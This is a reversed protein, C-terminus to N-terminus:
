GKIKKPNFYPYWKLLIRIDSEDIGSIVANKRYMYYDNRVEIVYLAMTSSETWSVDYLELHWGRDGHGTVSSDEGCHGMVFSYSELEQKTSFWGEISSDAPTCLFDFHELYEKVFYRKGACYRCPCPSRDPKEREACVKDLSGSLPTTRYCEYRGNSWDVLANHYYHSPDIENNVLLGVATRMEDCVGELAEMRKCLRSHMDDTEM